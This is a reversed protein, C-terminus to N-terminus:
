LLLTHITTLEQILHFYPCLSKPNQKQPREKRPCQRPFTWAINLSIELFNEAMIWSTEPCTGPIHLKPVIEPSRRSSCVGEFAFGRYAGFWHRHFHSKPRKLHPNSLFRQLYAKHTPLFVILFNLNLFIQM